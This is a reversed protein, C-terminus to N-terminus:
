ENEDLSKKAYNAVPEVIATSCACSEINMKQILYDSAYNGIDWANVFMADAFGYEPLNWKENLADAIAMMVESIEVHSSQEKSEITKLLAEKACLGAKYHVEQPMWEQDLWAAISEAMEQGELESNKLNELTALEINNNNNNWLVVHSSFSSTVGSGPATVSFRKAKWLNSNSHSNSKITLTWAHVM